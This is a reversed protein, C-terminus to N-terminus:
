VVQLEHDGSQWVTERISRPMIICGESAAGPHELSDGHMMFGGRGYMTNGEAPILALAYPGHVSSDFPEDIEYIGRPIPGVDPVSELLPNNKGDPEAGSYGTGVLDGSRSLNGNSQNYTWM